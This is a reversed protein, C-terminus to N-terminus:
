SKFSAVAKDATDATDFVTIMQTVIFLSNVKETAGAILLQGKVNKLSTYCSMLMGLGLSNMWKVKSIDVVIKKVDDSILKKVKTHVEWTEGGGMLKGSVTLVAVNDIIKEKVSM